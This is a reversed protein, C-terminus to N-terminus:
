FPIARCLETLTWLSEAPEAGNLLTLSESGRM